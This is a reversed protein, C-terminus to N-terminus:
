DLSENNNIIDELTKRTLIDCGAQKYLPEELEEKMDESGWAKLCPALTIQEGTKVEISGTGACAALLLISSM